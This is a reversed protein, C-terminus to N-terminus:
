DDLESWREIAGDLQETLQELNDLHQRVVDKPQQYFDPAAMQQELQTKQEELGEILAPLGDLERQEKYSLKRPPKTASLTM